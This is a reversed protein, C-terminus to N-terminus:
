QKSIMSCYFSRIQGSPYAVDTQVCFSKEFLEYAVYDEIIDDM